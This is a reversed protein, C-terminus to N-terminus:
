CLRWHKYRTWCWPRRCSCTCWQRTRNFKNNFYNELDGNMTLGGDTYIDGDAVQVTFQGQGINFETGDFQFNIDDELEGDVGAIVIRDETLDDVNASALTSQGQVTLTESITTDDRIVFTNGSDIILSVSDTTSITNGGTAWDEAITIKGIRAGREAYINRWRQADTGLDYTKTFMQFLTALLRALM